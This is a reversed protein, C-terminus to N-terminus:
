LLPELDAGSKMVGDASNVVLDVADVLMDRLWQDAVADPGDARECGLVVSAAYPMCASCGVVDAAAPTRLMAAALDRQHVDLWNLSNGAAAAM